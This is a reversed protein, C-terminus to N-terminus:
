VAAKDGTQGAESANSNPSALSEFATQTPGIKKIEGAEDPYGARKSTKLSFEVMDGAVPLEEHLWDNVHFFYQRTNARSVLFGFGKDEKYIRIIGIM